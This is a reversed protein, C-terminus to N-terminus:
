LLIKKKVISRSKESGFCVKVMELFNGMMDGTWFVLYLYIYHDIYIYSESRRGDELRHGIRFDM